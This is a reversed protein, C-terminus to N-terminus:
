AVLSILAFHTPFSIAFPPTTFLDFRGTWPSASIDRRTWSRDWVQMTLSRVVEVRSRWDTRRWITVISRRTPQVQGEARGLHSPPKTPQHLQQTELAFRTELPMPMEGKPSVPSPDTQSRVGITVISRCTPQVEGQNAQAIPMDTQGEGLPSPITAFEKRPQHPQQIELDIIQKLPCQSRGRPPSPLPCPAPKQEQNILNNM